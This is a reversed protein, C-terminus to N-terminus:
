RKYCRRPSPDTSHRRRQLSWVAREDSRDSFDTVSKRISVNQRLFVKDEFKPHIVCELLCKQLEYQKSNFSQPAQFHEAFFKCHSESWKSYTCASIKLSCIVILVKEFINIEKKMKKVHCPGLNKNRHLKQSSNVSVIKNPNLSRCYLELNTIWFIKFM